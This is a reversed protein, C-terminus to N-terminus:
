VLAADKLMALALEKISELSKRKDIDVGLLEKIIAEIEDKSDSALIKQEANGEDISDKIEEWGDAIFDKLYVGVIEAKVNNRKIKITTM